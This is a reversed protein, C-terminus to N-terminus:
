QHLFAVVVTPVVVAGFHCLLLRGQFGVEFSRRNMRGVIVLDGKASAKVTVATTSAIATVENDGEDKFM